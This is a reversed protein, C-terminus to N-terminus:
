GKNRRAPPPSPPLPPAEDPRVRALAEEFERRSASADVEKCREYLQLVEAAVAQVEALQVRLTDLWTRVDVRQFVCAVYIAALAILHPPHELCM